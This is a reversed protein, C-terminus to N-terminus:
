IVSGRTEANQRSAVGCPPHGPGLCLRRITTLHDPFNFGSFSFMMLGLSFAAGVPFPFLDRQLASAFCGVPKVAGLITYSLIYARGILTSPLRLHYGVRFYRPPGCVAGEVSSPSVSYRGCFSRDPAVVVGARVTPRSATPPSSGSVVAVVMGLGNRGHLQRGPRPICCRTRVKARAWAVGPLNWLACCPGKRRPRVIYRVGYRLVRGAPLM